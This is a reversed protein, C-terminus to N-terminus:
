DSGRQLNNKQPTSMDQRCTDVGDVGAKHVKLYTKRVYVKGQGNKTPVTYIAEDDLMQGILFERKENTLSRFARCKNVVMRNSIGEAGHEDIFELVRQYVDPKDDDESGRLEAQLITEELCHQVFEACWRVIEESAVPNQPNAWAAMATCLRRLNNRSGSALQRVKHGQKSYQAIWASDIQQVLGAFRVTQPSPMVSATGSFIQEATLQTTDAQAFGRLQRIKSVVSAPPPEVIGKPRQSWQEMNTAPVFLVADAAGRGFEAAKFLHVMNSSGVLALMSLAPSYIVPQAGEGDPQKLGLEMWNDLSLTQGAYVRGTLVSLTQELMGSPQRKAFRLQDGYDDSLYLASPSRYLTSYLQQPSAMRTTRLLARMGSDFMIQDAGHHAYRGQSVSPCLVAVMVSAPDGYPSVYRRAASACMVSLAAAMSVLPHTEQFQRTMWHALETVAEVPCAGVKDFGQREPLREIITPAALAALAANSLNMGAAIGVEPAPCYGYKRAMLFITRWTLTRDVGKNSRISHWVRVSDVPDYKASKQSWTDWTTFAWQKDHCAHLAMAVKVWDDRSDSSMVALAAMVNLKEPETIVMSMGSGGATGMANHALLAGKAQGGSAFDRIWDPLPSAVVGDRPDSSAEWAYAGGSMHNSPELMIYGNIKVDVGAGLKGPLNLLAPMQFLRHEGGGGTFQLLDSALAGYQAEIDDISQYGGNRPDIDIACLNSPALYAAINADPYEAWWDSIKAKDSSASDQGQPVLRGIPHKGPSKCQTGCACAGNVIWWCPLIKWGLAAYAHAAALRPNTQIHQHDIM